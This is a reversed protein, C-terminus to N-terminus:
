RIIRCHPLCVAAVPNFIGNPSRENRAPVSVFALVDSLTYAAVGRWCHDCGCVAGPWGSAPVSPSRGHVGREGAGVQGGSVTAVAAAGCSLDTGDKGGPALEEEAPVVGALVLLAQALQFCVQLLPLRLDSWGACLRIAILPLRSGTHPGAEGV